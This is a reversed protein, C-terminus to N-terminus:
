NASVKDPLHEYSSLAAANSLEKRPLHFRWAIYEYYQALLIEKKNLYAENTEELLLMFVSYITSEPHQIEQRYQPLCEPAKCRWVNM